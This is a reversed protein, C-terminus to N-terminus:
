GGGGCCRNMRAPRPFQLEVIHDDIRAHTKCKFALARQSGSGPLADADRMIAGLQQGLPDQGAAEFDRLAPASLFTLAGAADTAWFMGIGLQEVDELVRGRAPRVTTEAPGDSAAGASPANRAPANQRGSKLFGIPM